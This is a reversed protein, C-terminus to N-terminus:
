AKVAVLIPSTQVLKQLHKGALETYTATYTAWCPPPIALRGVSFEAGFPRLGRVGTM